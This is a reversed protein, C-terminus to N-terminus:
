IFDEEKAPGTSQIVVKGKKKVRENINETRTWVEMEVDKKKLEGMPPTTFRGEALTNELESTDKGSEKAEKILKELEKKDIPQM